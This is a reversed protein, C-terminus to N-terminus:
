YINLFNTKVVCFTRFNVIFFLKTQFKKSIKQGLVKCKLLTLILSVGQLESYTKNRKKSLYICYNIMTNKKYFQQIQFCICLTLEWAGVRPVSRNHDTKSYHPCHGYSAGVSEDTFSRTTNLLIQTSEREWLCLHKHTIALEVYLKRVRMVDACSKPAGLKSPHLFGMKIAVWFREHKTCHCYTFICTELWVRTQKISILIWFKYNFHFNKYM